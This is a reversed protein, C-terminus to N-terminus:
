LPNYMAKLLHEVDCARDPLLVLPCGEVMHEDLSRPLSFMDSFIESHTCLTTRHVRFLTKEVCLVISGDDFWLDSHRTCESLIIPTESGDAAENRARKLPNAM